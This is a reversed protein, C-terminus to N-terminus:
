RANPARRNRASRCRAPDACAGDPGGPGASDSGIQSKEAVPQGVPLRADLFEEQPRGSRQRRLAEQEAAGAPVVLMARGVDDPEAMDAGCACLAKLTVGRAISLMLRALMAAVPKEGGVRTNSTAPAPAQRM